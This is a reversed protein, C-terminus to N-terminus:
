CKLLKWLLTDFNDLATYVKESILFELIIVSIFLIFMVDFAIGAGATSIPMYPDIGMFNALDIGLKNGMVLINANFIGVSTILSSWILSMIFLRLRM